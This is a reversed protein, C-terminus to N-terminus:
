LIQKYYKKIDDISNINKIHDKFEGGDCYEMIIIIKKDTQRIDYFKIIYPSSLKKLKKIIKIENNVKKRVFSDLKDLYIEKIACLNMSDKIVGKYVKSFSGKGLITNYDINYDYNNYYNSYNNM